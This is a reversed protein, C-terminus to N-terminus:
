DLTDIVAVVHCRIHVRRKLPFHEQRVKVIQLRGYFFHGFHVGEEVSIGSTATVAPRAGPLNSLLAEAWAATADCQPTKGFVRTIASHGSKLGPCAPIAPIVHIVWEPMPTFVFGNRKRRVLGRWNSYEIASATQYNANCVRLVM